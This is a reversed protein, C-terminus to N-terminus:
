SREEVRGEGADCQTAGREVSNNELSEFSSLRLGFDSLGHISEATRAIRVLNRAAKESTGPQPDQLTVSSACSGVQVFGPLNGLAAGHSQVHGVNVKVTGAEEV